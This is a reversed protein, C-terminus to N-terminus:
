KDMWYEIVITVWFRLRTKGPTCKHKWKYIGVLLQYHLTKHVTVSRSIHTPLHRVIRMFSHTVRANLYWYRNELEGLVGGGFLQRVPKQVGSCINREKVSWFWPSITSIWQTWTSLSYKSQSPHTDMGDQTTREKTASRSSLLAHHPSIETPPTM